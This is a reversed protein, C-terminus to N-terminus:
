KKAREKWAEETLPVLPDLKKGALGTNLSSLEKALTAQFKAYAADLDKGLTEMRTAQSATPRGEYLNVAGYLTGLEERLKDEGSVVEGEKVSVLARRQEEMAKDLGDLRKRLGDGAPLKAARARAQDRADSISEVVMTMRELMAYLKLSMERQAARDEASHASRPDHELTVRSSFTDKNKIMKVTYTGAPVRPGFAAFFVPQTAQPFKPPPLRMPWAVRNIGRRKGGPLTSVLTGDKDYVELKLDGVIHRKKLHYTIFAAEPPVEGEFESDGNFNFEFATIPMTWTRGELFAVDADLAQQTLARLPTIDDVIYIGRGHTGVILDHERPHVAIDRVPVGAPMGATFQGWQRGGDVSAWLGLETGVFLLNPSVVDERVVHAYGKMEASALSQWTKGYDATKFVHTKMDGTMHGDFTAYATGEDFRSAELSSVWTNKPLGAISAAVNTWTKGGDRTLQLNGDDTGVWILDRNKPSAAIAFITCHNEATSDDPTLGGSEDQKQKAPDNTTLDPSIKEWSVGRDRTRFLFQAGFYMTGPEAASLHIPTNWNFRYKPEGSKPTPKIDRIELTSKRLSFLMGGQCEAYWIDPDKPDPLTWFGDCFLGPNWHKAAIGGPRRSPGYWSTNDQLGGYVNYPQQMDFAVHYFQSVPLSGVFRWRFGRDDSLYV